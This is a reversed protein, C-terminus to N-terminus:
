EVVVDKEDTVDDDTAVDIGLCNCDDVCRDEADGNGVGANAFREKWDADLM